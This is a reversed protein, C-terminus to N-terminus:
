RISEQEDARYYSIGSRGGRKRQYMAQDAQRILEDADQAPGNAWSVGISAGVQVQQDDIAIPQCLSTLLREAVVESATPEQLGESVVVFEDGGLRAVFDSARGAGLLREAVTQLVRDGFAHGFVDNVPKFNDLDILLLMLPTGSRTARALAKDLHRSLATRNALGTLPDQLAMNELQQNAQELELTRALVREELVREQQQLAHVHQRQANLAENQALEKQRKLENFRAALGFSLLLMELASGIQVSYLTIFHNPLLAFNRLALLIAGCLMLGWAIVFIRAGPAGLVMCYLGSIILLLTALLGFISMTQLAIQVPAVLSALTLALGTVATAGLLRHWRPSYQPLDLFNRTFLAAIATALILSTPLIRNGAEGAHQWLYYPGIGNIAMAGAGFSAIFLVYLLFSPERLAFYLLLNYGGLALIMGLYAALVVHALNSQTRFSEAPWLLADVSLSGASEVSLLFLQHQGPELTVPFAPARHTMSRRHAPIVDGHQQVSWGEATQQYLSVRDLSPYLMELIWNSSETADGTLEFLVWIRDHTYGFNIDNKGAASQMQERRAMVQDPELEGSSDRLYQIAPQLNIAQRQDADLQLVPESAHLLGSCLFLCVLLLYRGPGM